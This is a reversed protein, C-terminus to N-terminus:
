SATEEAAQWALIAAAFALDEPFTIKINAPSGRVLRPVLGLAEVAQAEDTCELAGPHAFARQLAGFRFMQPTQAQWLGGRPVTAAAGPADADGDSRKLTDAVPVALLGGVPDDRLHERLRALADLPVCPRAADHVLLWDDANCQSALVQLANRITAARTAGGCRLAVVDAPRGEMRDYALDDPSLAVFMADPDLGRRLRALTRALVPVGALALYQKPVAAGFRAGGGAAAILALHRPNAKAM